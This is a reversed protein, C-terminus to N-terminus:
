SSTKGLLRMMTEAAQRSLADRPWVLSLSQQYAPDLPLLTPPPSINAVSHEPLVSLHGHDLVLNIIVPISDVEVLTLRAREAPSLTAELFRDTMQRLGSRPSPVAIPHRCLLAALDQPGAEGLTRPAALALQSRGILSGEFEAPYHDTDLLILDFRRNKLGSVLEDATTSSLFLPQRPRVARWEVALRALTAAIESEHGFPIVTGLRWTAASRRFREAAAASLADWAVGIREALGLAELGAPTCSIGAASRALLKCGVAEELHSLQRTLQPQGLGLTKAAANISGARAATVFRALAALSIAPPARSADGLATLAAAARAIEAFRPLRGEADLTPVLAQGDRRVLPVSLVAEVRRLAASASSAPRGAASAARRIGREELISHVLCLTSLDM